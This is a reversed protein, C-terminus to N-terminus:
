YSTSYGCRFLAWNWLLMEISIEHIPGHIFDIDLSNSIVKRARTLNDRLANTVDDAISQSRIGISHSIPHIHSFWRKKDDNM